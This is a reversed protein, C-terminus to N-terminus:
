SGEEDPGKDKISYTEKEGQDDKSEGNETEMFDITANYLKKYREDNLRIANMAAIRQLALCFTRCCKESVYLDGTCLANEGHFASVADALTEGLKRDKTVISIQPVDDRRISVYLM